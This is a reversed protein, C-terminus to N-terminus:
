LLEVPKRRSGRAAKIDRKLQEADVLGVWGGASALFAERQEPTLVKAKLRRKPRAPALVAIAEGDRSLVRRSGTRAVEEALRVVDPMESIDVREAERVM